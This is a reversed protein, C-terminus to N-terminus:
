LRAGTHRGFVRASKESSRKSRRKFIRQPVLLANLYTIDGFAFSTEEGVQSLKVARGQEVRMLRALWADDPYPLGKAEVFPKVAKALEAPNAKKMHEGAIWDLKEMSFIAGGKNVKNIDFSAILESLAYVEQDGRPNWGLLALFNLLAEPLYGEKVYDVAAAHGSRKSLKGGGESLILPLHALAPVKWGFAEYLLVHKPTSSLWEEGRIVHTIKMLHDDVVNALHYTPFGDSKLLVQDDVDASHFSVEGRISDVFTITRGIPVKLRLVAGKAAGNLERCHGDYKPVAGRKKQEERMKELREASCRCWYAAGNKALEEAHKSYLEFRESQVYPGYKGDVAPGEDYTLGVAKLINLIEEQAGPVLRTRDTDEIRIIFKGKHHRAFLFNYLATRLGGIHLHGTPSPAFRTRVQM